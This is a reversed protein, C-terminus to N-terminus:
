GVSGGMQIQILHIQILRNMEIAYELPLEKVIPRHLRLRDDRLSGIRVSRTVDPLCPRLPRREPRTSRRLTALSQESGHAYGRVVLLGDVHERSIQLQGADVQQRLTEYDRDLTNM